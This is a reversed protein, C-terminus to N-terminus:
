RGIVVQYCISCSFAKILFDLHKVISDKELLSQISKSISAFMAKAEDENHKAYKTQNILEIEFEDDTEIERRRRRNAGGM